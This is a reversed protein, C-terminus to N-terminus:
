EYPNELHAARCYASETMRWDDLLYPLAAWHEEAQPGIRHLDADVGQYLRVATHLEDRLDLKERHETEKRKAERERNWELEQRRRVIEVRDAASVDRSCGLTKSATTPDCHDRLRVYDFQDGTEGCGFCKFGGHNLNVSFSHRKKSEHCPPNGHCKAWGKSNPRSLKFGESEYFSRAPPLQSRDFHSTPM